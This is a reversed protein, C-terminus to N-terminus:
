RSKVIDLSTIGNVGYLNDWLRYESMQEGEEIFSIHFSPFARSLRGQHSYKMLDHLMGYLRDNMSPIKNGKVEVAHTNSNFLPSSMETGNEGAKFNEFDDLKSYSEDKEKASNLIEESRSQFTEDVSISGNNNGNPIDYEAQQGYNDKLLIKGDSNISKLIYDKLDGMTMIYFDPDVYKGEINRHVQGLDKPHGELVKKFEDITPLDLDPFPSKEMLRKKLLLQNRVSQLSTNVELDEKDPRAYEERLNGSVKELSEKHKQGTDFEYFTLSISFVEPNNTTSITAAEIVINEVGFLNLLDNDVKLFGPMIEDRYAQTKANIEDLMNKFIAVTERGVAQFEAFGLVDQSGFYQHAPETQGDLRIESVINEQKINLRKLHLRELPIEELTMDEETKEALAEYKVKDNQLKNSRKLAEAEIDKREINELLEIIKKDDENHKPHGEFYIIIENLEERRLRNNESATKLVERSPTRLLAGGKDEGETLIYDPYSNGVAEMMEKATLEEFGQYTKYIHHFEKKADFYKDRVEVLESNKKGMEKAIDSVKKEYEAKNQSLETRAERREALEAESIKSFTISDDIEAKEIKKYDDINKQYYYRFLPWNFVHKFINMTDIQVVEDVWPLYTRYNFEYMTLQCKLTNPFGEITNVELGQLTVADIGLVDNVFENEIPLFPAKNFQAILSRLGDLYYFRNDDGVADGAALPNEVEYGNISNMNNFYIDITLRTTSQGGGYKVSGSGRLTKSKQTKSVKDTRISTPPIMFQVDGLRLFYPNSPSGHVEDLDDVPNITYKASHALINSKGYFTKDEETIKEESM